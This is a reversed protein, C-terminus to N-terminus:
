LIEKDARHQQIGAAPPQRPNIDQKLIQLSTGLRDKVPRTQSPVPETLYLTGHRPAPETRERWPLHAHLESDSGPSATEL